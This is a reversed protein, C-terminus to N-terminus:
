PLDRGTSATYIKYWQELSLDLNESEVAKRIRDINGTGVIPIISAPHKFLWSFIVKEVSDVELERSVESLVQFIRQEREEGPNMLRGGALPSWGMPKIKEKLFFDINGNDFQELCFPSIEVQNTVLKEETFSNLLEFQGVNFNSVGFNLVKGSKKLESFAQAVMEPNFFPAPRHLLLLDIYDTRFNKLSQNVSSVIHDISYDYYKLKRDPFRESVLNIGCKTVIEIERRLGTKLSIADGFLKECQYNGYIDAHDFTTIGLEIVQETLTLLQQDSLKWSALRWHGQVLRSFELDKALKIRNM